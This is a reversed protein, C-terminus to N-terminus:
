KAADVSQPAARTAAGEVPFKEPDLDRASLWGALGERLWYVQTWGGAKAWIAAKLAAWDYKDEGYIVIERGKNQPLPLTSFSEADGQFHAVTLKSWEEPTNRGMYPALVRGAIALGENVSGSSPSRIDIFPAGALKLKLAEAAGLTQIGSWALPAEQGARRFGADGERFWFLRRYGALFALGMARVPTIDFQDAGSFILERSKDSPIQQLDFRDKARFVNLPLFPNHETPDAKIYPINRASFHHSGQFVEPSRVDILLAGNQLLESERTEDVTEGLSVRDAISRDHAFTGPKVLEFKLLYLGQKFLNGSLAEKEMPDESSSVLEELDAPRHTPDILRIETVNIIASTTKLLRVPGGLPWLVDIALPGTKFCSQRAVTRGRRRGQNLSLLSDVHVAISRAPLGSVCGGTESLPTNLPTSSLSPLRDSLFWAATGALVLLILVTLIITSRKLKGIEQPLPGCVM